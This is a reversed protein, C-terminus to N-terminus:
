AILMTEGDEPILVAPRNNEKLWAKLDSRTVLCHNITNMHVAIIKTAPMHEQVQRIDEPAMTIPGGTLFQAAGANVITYVPKYQDLAQKVEECWITDGAIYLSQEQDRIVFGSVLGMRKGTEGSGHQGGTRCLEIGSWNIADAVARVDSFGQAKIKDTDAPQCFITKNKPILEQAKSDWHDRHLHTLIVADTQQILQILEAEQMPLEVMPIRVSNAANGVPDMSAKPAFMPDVLLKRNNWEVFLSAHRILRIKKQAAPATVAPLVTPLVSLSAMQQLFKRRKM